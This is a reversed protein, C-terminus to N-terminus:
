KHGESRADAPRKMAANILDFRAKGLVQDIVHIANANSELDYRTIYVRLGLSDFERAWEVEATTFPRFVGDEMVGLQKSM